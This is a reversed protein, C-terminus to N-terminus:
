KKLIKPEKWEERCFYTKRLIGERKFGAEELARQSAINMPDTDAQIRMICAHTKPSIKVRLVWIKASLQLFM